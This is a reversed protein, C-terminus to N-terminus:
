RIVGHCKKYKKGSGCPCPENRGVRPPVEIHPVSPGMFLTPASIMIDGEVKPMRQYGTVLTKLAEHGVQRIASRTVNEIPVNGPEFVWGLSNHRSLRAYTESLTPDVHAGGDQNAVALVLNKRSMEARERDVFIIENWWDGFSLWRKWPVDDLPAFYDAGAETMTMMALGIHSTMNGPRYPAATSLFKGSLLDLQGLLSSSRSTDHFLVRLSVAIRKAEGIKGGDFADASSQLFDLHDRLHVELEALSQSVGSM